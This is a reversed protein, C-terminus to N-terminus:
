PHDGWRHLVTAVLGILALPAVILMLTALFDANFVSARVLPACRSCAWAGLPTLCMLSLVLINKM